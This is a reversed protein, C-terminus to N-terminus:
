HGLSQTIRPRDRYNSGYGLEEILDEVFAKEEPFSAKPGVKIEALPLRGTKPNRLDMFIFPILENDREYHRILPADLTGDNPDLIM